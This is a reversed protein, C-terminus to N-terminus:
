GTILCPSLCNTMSNSTTKQAPSKMSDQKIEWDTGDLFNLVILVVRSYTPPQSINSSLPYTYTYMDPQHNPVDKIKGYIPFSWGLQSINKLPTSVVM